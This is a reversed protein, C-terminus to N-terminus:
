IYFFGKLDNFGVTGNVLLLVSTCLGTGGAGWATLCLASLWASFGTNETGHKRERCCALWLKPAACTMFVMHLPISQTASLASPIVNGRGGACQVRHLM